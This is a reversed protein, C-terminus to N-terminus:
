REALCHGTSIRPEDPGFPGFVESLMTRCCCYDRRNDAEEFNNRDFARPHGIKAGPLRLPYRLEACVREGHSQGHLKEVTGTPRCFPHRCPRVPKRAPIMELWLDLERM